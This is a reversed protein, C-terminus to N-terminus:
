FIEINNVNVNSANLLLEVISSYDYKCMNYFVAFENGVKKPFSKFNYNKISQVFVDIENRISKKLFRNRIYKMITNHHCKICEFLYKKYPKDQKKSNNSSDLLHILEPNQSHIAYFWLSQNLKAKKTQLYKFIQSSGFFVSYEFITSSKKILFSNTEYISSEIPSSASLKEQNFFSVFENIADNRILECIYSDNEAIKRKTDYSIINKEIFEENINMKGVEKKMKEDFFLSFEPFFYHPYCKKMYKSSSIIRYMSKTPEIFNEEFLFLLIRKNKKFINFIDFKTYYSNMEAKFFQLIQEIKPFFNPTRHHNNSIKLLIYLTSKLQSKDEKVKQKQFFNILSQYDETSSKENELFDLIHKQIHKMKKLYENIDM